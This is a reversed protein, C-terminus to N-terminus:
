ITNQFNRIFSSFNADEVVEWFGAPYVDNMKKFFLGFAGKM